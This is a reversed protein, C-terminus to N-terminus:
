ENSLGVKLNELNQYMIDFYTVNNNLEDKSINHAAHLMLTKSGTENALMNALKPDVLEEFYVVEINNDNIYDVLEGVKKMSAEANASFSEFPTVYNMGYRDAFFEFAFHGAFVITNNEVSDFLAYFAEDLAMLESVLEETNKQYFEANEPDLKVVEASLYESMEIMVSPDLWFHPDEGEINLVEELNIINLDDRVSKSINNAYTELHDSTYVFMKSEDVVVMDKPTPEYGHAEVGPPLLLVVEAKDKVIAKLMDYQPYLTAVIVLEDKPAKVKNDCGSLVLMIMIISYIIKKM